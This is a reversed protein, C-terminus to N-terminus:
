AGPFEEASLIPKLLSETEVAQLDLWLINFSTVVLHEVYALM